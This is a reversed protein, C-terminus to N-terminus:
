RKYRARTVEVLVFNENLDKIEYILIIDNGDIPILEQGKKRARPVGKTRFRSQLINELVFSANTVLTPHIRSVVEPSVIVDVAMENRSM